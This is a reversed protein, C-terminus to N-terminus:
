PRLLLKLSVSSSPTELRAFYVGAAAEVGDATRGHWNWSHDGAPLDRDVLVAVERGAVDYIALRVPAAARLAFRLNTLGSSPNPIGVLELRLARGLGVETAGQTEEAGAILFTSPNNQSRYETLVWDPSFVGEVIRFEDAGGDMVDDLAFYQNGLVGVPQNEAPNILRGRYFPAPPPTPYTSHIAQPVGDYYFVVTDDVADFVWLFHHYGSNIPLPKPFFRLHLGSVQYDPQNSPSGIQSSLHWFDPNAEIFFDSSAKTHLLWASLAYSSDQTSINRTNIHHSTGNFMWGKHIKADVRDNTTWLRAPDLTADANQPSSDALLGAGPDEAFHYVVRYDTSWANAPQAPLNAAPNAYYLYIENQLKSFAPMRVWIEAKQLANDYGVIERALVTAGDSATVLIDSGDPKAGAFVSAHSAGDLSVLLPFDAFVANGAIQLPNAQIPIRHLWDPQGWPASAACSGVACLAFATQRLMPAFPRIRM